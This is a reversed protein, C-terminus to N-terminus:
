SKSQKSLIITRSQRRAVLSLMSKAKMMHQEEKYLQGSDAKLSGSMINLITSKGAGNEGLLALVEGRKIDFSVNDLVTNSGYKKTIGELRFVINEDM